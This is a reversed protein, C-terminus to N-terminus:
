EKAHITELTSVRRALDGYQNQILSEQNQQREDMRVLTKQVDNLTSFGWILASGAALTIIAAFIGAGWKLPAPVEVPQPPERLIRSDNGEVRRIIADALQESIVRVQDANGLGDPM